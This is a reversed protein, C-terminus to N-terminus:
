GPLNPFNTNIILSCIDSNIFDMAIIGCRFNSNNQNFFQYVGPNIDDSVQTISPIGFFLSKYGSTYNIYLRDPHTMSKSEDLIKNFNNWKDNSDSVKYNDQIKLSSANNIEFTCNDQWNEADIGKPVIAAKFRRVLVIKGRVQGLNPIKDGLYWKGPYRSVYDDFTEEFSRTNNSPDYEEKVSMIITENTNNNLFTICDNLIDGFNIDQYFPGHHIAFINSVHRCRIDLYRVGMQLQRNIPESQCRVSNSPIYWPENLAGSDHTGPISLSAVSIINPLEGMWNSLDYYTSTSTAEPNIVYGWVQILM